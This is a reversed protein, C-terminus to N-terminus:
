RSQEGLVYNLSSPERDQVFCMMGILADVDNNEFNNHSCKVQYFQDLESHSSSFKCFYVKHLALCPSNCNKMLIYFKLVKLNLFHDFTLCHLM